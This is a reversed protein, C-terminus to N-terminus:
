SRRVDRVETAPLEGQATDESGLTGLFEPVCKKMINVVMRVRAPVPRQARTLVHLAQAPVRYHPLLEVLRGSALADVCAFSEVVGIGLGESIMRFVAKWHNATIASRIAVSEQTASADVLPLQDTGFM